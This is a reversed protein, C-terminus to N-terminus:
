RDERQTPESRWGQAGRPEAPQDEGAPALPRVLLRRGPRVDVHGDDRLRRLALSVTPRDAGVLRGLQAHTLAFPVVSGGDQPEGWSEALLLLTMQVRDTASRVHLIANLLSARQVRAVTRQWLEVRISPWARVSQVFAPDFMALTVPTAADWAVALPLMGPRHAPVSRVIALDTRWLVDRPGLPEAGAVGGIAVSRMLLGDVVMVRMADARVGVPLWRGAPLHVVPATVTRRARRLELESLGCALGPDLDLVAARGDPTDTTQDM